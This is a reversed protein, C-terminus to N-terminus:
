NVRIHFSIYKEDKTQNKTIRSVQLSCIICYVTTQSGSKYLPIIRGVKLKDPVLGLSFSCNFLYSLSYSLATKLLKLMKVPISYPGLAKSANLSSIVNEVEMPAVPTVFFSNCQSTTLFEVFSKNVPQITNALTPGISSFYKNFANAISKADTLIDDGVILRNPFSLKGGKFSILQKIGRWTAKVNNVHYSFYENYYIKKSVNLIHKLKNRYMKYKSHNSQSKNRLYCNFLKNKTKISKQIGQSIWPKSQFKAEKKSLKKLPAHKDITNTTISYFSDFIENIDNEKFINDWEIAQVDLLLDEQVLNSYDRTYRVGSNTTWSLTSLFLFNPLHDTLDCVLNDSISFFENSNFSINDILTATHDTIRTPQLIHPLFDYSVTTNIFEETLQCDEFNLLNINFDGMFLCLKKEKSIKDLTSCLYKTFDGPNGSPHRYLIGCVLSKHPYRNIEIWLSEFEKTILCLDERINFPIGEKVYLGVGGANTLTPKSIFDYGNITINSTPDCSDKIKTESLGIVDFAHQLESLLLTMGDHNASLSRINFHITSFSLNHKSQSLNENNLFDELSYYKFDTQQMFNNEVDHHHLSSIKALKSLLEFRPLNDTHIFTM